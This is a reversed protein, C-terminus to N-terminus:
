SLARIVVDTIRVGWNMMWVFSAIFILKHTATMRRQIDGCIILGGLPSRLPKHVTQSTDKDLTLNDVM